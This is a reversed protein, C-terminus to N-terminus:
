TVAGYAIRDAPFAAILTEGELLPAVTGLIPDPTIRAM